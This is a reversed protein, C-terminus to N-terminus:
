GNMLSSASKVADDLAAQASKKGLLANQLETQILQSIANYNAVQPRLILDNLQKAAVPLMKPAKALVGSDNYSSKWIPLADGAYKNLQDQSSIFEILKWAADQNKSGRSISLAMAGNVGPRKGSPGAPTQMPTIQGVVKSNKADNSSGLYYTWNLGMAAQGNNLTKEVDAELFTTSAPNTLGDTVTKRMWELAQVGGGTNIALKGSSDLFSGGFAGLLQTYDCMIAEAQSWSWVLPYKVIGKSKIAQAATLVGDWTDLGSTSAGAQSLMKSNAYFLKTDMGWPVGYQKSNYQATGFAGGLMTTQWDGPYRSTVDAVINKSAFEAPWIVDILVVDYTGAAAATVIKDHLAEYTVFTPVVTINPNAAKFDKLMTGVDTTSYGAQQMFLAHVTGTGSGTSGSNSKGGTVSCASLALLASAGAGGLLLQRRSPQTLLSLDQIDKM